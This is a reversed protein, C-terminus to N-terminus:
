ERVAREAATFAVRREAEGLWAAFLALATFLFVAGFPIWMVIGALHQDDVPNVGAAATRAAHTPYWVRLGFTLLAGLIQTHMATAFVYLVGVGYGLRGYRGHVLAWWFLAATLFFLLHQLAHLGEDQLAAEFLAPVHWAWLVVAHLILVTFPGSAREWALTLWRNKVVTSVAARGNAPLAWLTVIFPRGLVMLPASVLMVVEHQAMHASFLVDSWRDLPGLLAAAASTAGLLFALAQWPRITQRGADHQWLRRLGVAYAATVILLSAATVANWADASPLRTAAHAHGEHALLPAALTWVGLPLLLRGRM